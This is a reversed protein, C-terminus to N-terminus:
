YRYVYLMSQGESPQKFSDFQTGTAACASLMLAAFAVPLFKM